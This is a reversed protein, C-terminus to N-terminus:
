SALRENITKRNHCNGCLPQLNDIDNSGGQYLPKIHDVQYGEDLTESCGACKWKYKAGVVKKMANTVNRKEKTGGGSKVETLLQKALDVTDTFNEPSQRAYWWLGVIVIGGAALRIYSAWEDLFRRGYLEYLVWGGVVAALGMGSNWDCGSM